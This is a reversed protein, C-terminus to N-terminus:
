MVLIQKNKARCDGTPWPRRMRSTELDCGVVCWVRYFEEPSTILEDCLGGGSLM